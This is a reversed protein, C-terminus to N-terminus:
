EPREFSSILGLEAFSIFEDSGIILHDLLPIQLLEGVQHVRETISIDQISPHPDGSPHNHALIIGSSRCLLAHHYIQRPDVITFAESGKTLQEMRILVRRRNLFLAFLSEEAENCLVPWLLRFAKDASDIPDIPITSFLSRQGLRMGAHIRIATTTGIGQHRALAAPTSQSLGKIGNFSDLLTSAKQLADEGGIMLRLLDLDSFESTSNKLYQLHHTM